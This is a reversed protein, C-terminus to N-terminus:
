IRAVKRYTFAKFRRMVRIIPGLNMLIMYRVEYIFKFLINADHYKITNKVFPIECIRSMTDEIIIRNNRNLYLLRLAHFCRIFNAIIFGKQIKGFENYMCLDVFAKQLETRSNWSSSEIQRYAVMADPMYILKGRDLFYATILNDDFLDENILSIKDKIVNRFLFTDAHLWNFSWYIKRSMKVYENPMDLKQVDGLKGTKEWFFRFPHGCAICDLNNELFEFQLQLKHNDLYFDDGDLFCVYRGKAHSLLNIRNRSVRHIPEYKMNCDRPMQFVSIQSPYKEKWRLLEEYTGDSSGDDGCLIEYVFSTEQSLVSMLSDKIYQIQNYYTIMVSIMVETKINDTYM